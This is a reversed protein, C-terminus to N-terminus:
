DSIELVKELHDFLGLFRSIVTKLYIQFIKGNVDLRNVKRINQGFHQSKGGSKRTLAKGQPLYLVRNTRSMGSKHFM